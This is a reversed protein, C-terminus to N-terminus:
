LELRLLPFEKDDEYISFENKLYLEVPGSPNEPSNKRAITEVAKIHRKELDELVANLLVTGFGQGKYKKGFIFLCSIFAADPSPLNPYHIVNPFFKPPAYQAFGIPKKDVHIVIACGGFESKVHKLWQLKKDMSKKVESKNRVKFEYPSQWYLCYKCSYPFSTWEPLDKLNHETIYAVKIKM